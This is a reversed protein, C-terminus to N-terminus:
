AALLPGDSARPVLNVPELYGLQGPPERVQHEFGAQALAAFRGQGRFWRPKFVM